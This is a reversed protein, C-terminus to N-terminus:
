TLYQIAKSLTDKSDRAHGLMFNCHQCLIGRVRKTKHCHDVAWDKKGPTDSSCIACVGGQALLMEDRQELTIGYTNKLRNSKHKNPNAERRAKVNALVKDRNAWYYAKAREANSLPATTTM